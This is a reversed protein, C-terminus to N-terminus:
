QTVINQLLVQDTRSMLWVLATFGFVFALWTIAFALTLQISQHTGHSLVSFGPDGPNYRTMVVEAQQLKDLIQQHTRENGSGSYGVALQDSRYEKGGVHYRYEVRVSYSKGDEDSYTEMSCSDLTAITTPWTAAAGSARYAKIGSYLLGFGIAYFISIFLGFCIMFGMRRM